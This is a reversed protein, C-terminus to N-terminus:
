KRAKIIQIGFDPSIFSLKLNSKDVEMDYEFSYGDVLLELTKGSDLVRYDGTSFEDIDSGNFFYASFQGEDEDDETFTFVGKSYEFPILEEGDSIFSYINWEGALHNNARIDKDFISCGSSLILIAMGPILFHLLSKM